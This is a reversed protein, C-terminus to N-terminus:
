IPSSFDPILAVLPAQIEKILPSNSNGQYFKLEGNYRPLLPTNIIFVHTENNNNTLHYSAGTLGWTIHNEETPFALLNPYMDVVNSFNKKEDEKPEESFMVVCQFQKKYSLLRHLTKMRETVGTQKEGTGNDNIAKIVEQPNVTCLSQIPKPAVLCVKLQYLPHDKLIDLLVKEYVNQIKFACLGREKHTGGSLSVENSMCLLKEIPTLENDKIKASVKSYFISMVRESFALQKFSPDALGTIAFRNFPPANIIM